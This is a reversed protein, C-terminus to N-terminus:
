GELSKDIYEIVANERLKKLYLELEKQLKKSVEEGTPEEHIIKEQEGEIKIFYVGKRTEVEFIDGVKHKWIQEDLSKVLDGKKVEGLLGGKEATVPDDSYQKALQDFPKEKLLAKIQQYKEKFAPKNKQLYILRLKRLTIAKGEQIGEYLNRKLYIHVFKSILIERKIINKFESFVLGKEELKERFKDVSDLRNIRALRLIANNVESPSAHIGVKEAAEALLIQDILKKAAEKEDKTGYWEKALEVESKLVPKGNVVIVVKDLLQEKASVQFLYVFVLLLPILVKVM